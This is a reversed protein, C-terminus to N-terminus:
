AAVEEAETRVHVLSAAFQEACERWTFRQAHRRADDRNLLLAKRIAQNLNEDMSGARPDTLVDVPGMVPYAAVPLGCAMAEIMVNGFTDTKSPFVFVDASQYATILDDGVRKGLFVAEPYRQKLEALQPGDGVVIKTGQVDTRLFAEVNKEVAVRGVYLMHPGPLDTFRTKPGPAFQAADVGRSWLSLNTFERAELDRAVSPTPVLTASAGAHFWRLYAYSWESPVPLRAAVYEPFRTHYSTTFRLRNTVCHFRAMLGLPGETAIHIHDPDGGEITEAIAGFPALSLRIEPYTPLPMTWFREPTLYSVDYGLGVLERGVRELSRVVGNVQPHWADTVIILRTM